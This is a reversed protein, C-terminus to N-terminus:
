EKNKPTLSLCYFTKTGKHHTTGLIEIVPHVNGPDTKKKIQKKELINEIQRHLFLRM